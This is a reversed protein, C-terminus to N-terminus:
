IFIIIVDFLSFIPKELTREVDIDEVDSISDDGSLKAADSEM